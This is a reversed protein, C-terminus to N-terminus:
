AMWEEILDAARPAGGARAFSEAIRSAAEAFASEDLVRMVADRLAPARVRGFKVRIGAGAEVVQQAVVPQDDVIPAVVLPRGHALAEVVTNHGAHCVVADVHPLLALQPVFDRRLVNDPMAAPACDRPAVLVVQIPGGGLAEVVEGFFRAGARANVTGLTVLVRPGDRLASWPFDVPEPRDSISPGVFEVRGPLAADGVLARTSFAVVLYPSREPAPGADVGAAAFLGAILEDLWARVKPLGALPDVVGASTTAFTVWPLARRRAAIAGAVAQQDVVVVDPRWRDIAADVGPVMQRALPAFFEEWLLKLRAAGRAATARAAIPAAVDDPVDDDLAFRTADPPLARALARAHGVWAVAHGRASLERAVSVTPNIHGMLPPVVFLVRSM